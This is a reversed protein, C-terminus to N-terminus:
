AVQGTEELFPVLGLDGHPEPTQAAQERAEDFTTPPLQTLMPLAQYIKSFDLDTMSESTSANTTGTDLSRMYNIFTWTAAGFIPDLSDFTESSADTLVYISESELAPFKELTAQYDPNTTDDPSMLLYNAAVTQQEAPDMFTTMLTYGDESIAEPTAHEIGNQQIGVNVIDSMYNPLNLDSIAQVFLLALTIFLVGLYPKLYRSLKIM